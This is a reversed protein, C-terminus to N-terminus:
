VLRSSLKVRNKPKKKKQFFLFEIGYKYKSNQENKKVIQM